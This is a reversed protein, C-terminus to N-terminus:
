GSEALATDNGDAVARNNAVARVEERKRECGFVSIDVGLKVVADEKQVCNVPKSAFLILRNYINIIGKIRINIIEIKMNKGASDAKPRYAGPRESNRARFASSADKPSFYARAEDAHMGHHHQSARLM